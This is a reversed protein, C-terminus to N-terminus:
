SLFLFFVNIVEEKTNINDAKQNGTVCNDAGFLLYLPLPSVTNLEDYDANNEDLPIITISGRRQQDISAKRNDKDNFTM